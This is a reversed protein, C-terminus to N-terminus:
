TQGHTNGALTPRRDHGSVAAADPTKEGARQGGRREAAAGLQRRVDAGRWAATEGSM